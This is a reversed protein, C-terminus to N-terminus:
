KKAVTIKRNQFHMHTDVFKQMKMSDINLFGFNRM